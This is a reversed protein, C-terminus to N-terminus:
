KCCFVTVCAPALITLKKMYLIMVEIYFSFMFLIGDADVYM